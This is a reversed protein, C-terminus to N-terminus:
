FTYIGGVLTARQQAQLHMTFLLDLKSVPAWTTVIALYRSMERYHTYLWNESPFLINAFIDRNGFLFIDMLRSM